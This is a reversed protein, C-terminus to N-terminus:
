SSERYVDGAHVGPAGAAAWGSAGLRPGWALMCAHQVLCCGSRHTHGDSPQVSGSCRDDPICGMEEDACGLWMTRLWGTQLGGAHAASGARMCM